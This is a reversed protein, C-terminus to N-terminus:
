TRLSGLEAREAKFGEQRAVKLENCVVDSAREVAKRKLSVNFVGCM